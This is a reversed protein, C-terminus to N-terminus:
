INNKNKNNYEDNNKQRVEDLMAENTKHEICRTGIM